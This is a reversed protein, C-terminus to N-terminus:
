FSWGWGITGGRMGATFTVRNVSPLWAVSGSRAVLILPIGVSLLGLASFGSAAACKTKAPGDPMGAACAGLVVLAFVGGILGAAGLENLPDPRPLPPARRAPPSAPPEVAAPTASGSPEPAQPEAARAAGSLSVMLGVALARVLAQSMLVEVDM